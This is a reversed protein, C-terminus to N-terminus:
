IQTPEPSHILHEYNNSIVVPSLFLNNSCVIVPSHIVDKSSYRIEYKINAPYKANSISTKHSNSYDDILDTM